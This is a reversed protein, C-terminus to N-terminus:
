SLFSITHVKDVLSMLNVPPISVDTDILVVADLWDDSNSLPKVRLVVRGQSDKSFSFM